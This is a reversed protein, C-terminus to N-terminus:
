ATWAMITQKYSVLSCCMSSLMIISVRQGAKVCFKEKRGDLPALPPMRIAAEMLWKLSREELRESFVRVIFNCINFSAISHFRVLTYPGCTSGFLSRKRSSNFSIMYLM